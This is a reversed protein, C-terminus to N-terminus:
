ALHPPGRSDALGGSPAEHSRDLPPAHPTSALTAFAAPPADPLPADGGLFELSALVHEENYVGATDSQHLHRALNPKLPLAIAVLAILLVTAAFRLPETRPRMM